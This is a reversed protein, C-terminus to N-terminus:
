KIQLIVDCAFAQKVSVVVATATQAGPSYYVHWAQGMIPSAMVPPTWDGFFVIKLTSAGGEVRFQVPEGVIPSPTSTEMCNSRPLSFVVMQGALFVLVFVAAFIVVLGAFRNM